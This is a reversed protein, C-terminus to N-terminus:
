HISADNQNLAPPKLNMTAFLLHLSLLHETLQLLLTPQNCGPHWLLFCLAQALVLGPSYDEFERNLSGGRSVVCGVGFIGFDGGIVDIM